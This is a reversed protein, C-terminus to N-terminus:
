MSQVLSLLEALKKRTEEAQTLKSKTQEVVEAPAKSVFQADKLRNGTHSIYRSLEDIKQQLRAQEKQPDILGALPILVEIGDVVTAAAHSISTRDAAVHVEGTAALMKLLADHSAFFSRVSAHHSVLHVAPRSEPPLNLEAKTNRIAVTVAQFREFLKEAEADMLKKTATPWAAKMISHATHQTSHAPMLHQWLEETVFPMVPHLLRLSTELVHVLIDATQQTNDPTQLQVKAIELYWDCVDHWLFDYLANAADSFVHTNLSGTVRQITRQLRSLIWRNPM